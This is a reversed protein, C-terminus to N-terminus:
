MREEEKCFSLHRTLDQKFSRAPSTSCNNCRQQWKRSTLHSHSINNTEVIAPGLPTFLATMSPFHLSPFHLGNSFSRFVLTTHTHTLECGDATKLRGPFLILLKRNESLLLEPNFKLPATSFYTKIHRIHPSRHRVHLGANDHRM